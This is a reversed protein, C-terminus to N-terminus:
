VVAGVLAPHTRVFSFLHLTLYAPLRSIFGCGGNYGWPTVTYGRERTLPPFLPLPLPLPPLSPLHVRAGPGLRRYIYRWLSTTVVDNTVSLCWAVDRRLLSDEDEAVEVEASTCEQRVRPSDRVLNKKKKKAVNHAKFNAAVDKCCCRSWSHRQSFNLPIMKISTISSSISNDNFSRRRRKLTQRIRNNVPNFVISAISQLLNIKSEYICIHKGNWPYLKSNKLM